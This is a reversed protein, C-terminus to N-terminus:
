LYSHVDTTILADFSKISFFFLFFDGLGIYSDESRENSKIFSSSLVQCLM